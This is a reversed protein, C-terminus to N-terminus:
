SIIESRLFFFRCVSFCMLSAIWISELPVVLGIFAPILLIMVDPTLTLIYLSSLDVESRIRKKLSSRVSSHQTMFNPSGILCFHFSLMELIRFMFSYVFPQYNLFEINERESLMKVLAGSGSFHRLTILSVFLNKMQKRVSSTFFYHDSYM